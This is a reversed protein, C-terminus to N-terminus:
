KLTILFLDIVSPKKSDKEVKQGFQYRSFLNLDKNPLTGYDKNKRIMFKYNGITAETLELEQTIITRQNNEFLRNIKKDLDEIAKERGLTFLDIEKYEIIRRKEKHNEAIEGSLFLTLDENKCFNAVESLYPADITKILNTLHKTQYPTAYNLKTVLSKPNEATKDPSKLIM